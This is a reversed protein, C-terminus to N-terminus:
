AKKNLVAPVSTCPVMGLETIVTDVFSSPMVDYVLNLLYLSNVDRWNELVSNTESKRIKVLDDPDGLENFVFADTQVRECFKYTECCVLVPVNNAKAVMAIISSGIRSMVYGNSLLAHAGLFVKTVEKITYSVANILVYSCRIGANTLKRVAERGEFRPRSDVIVVRFMKGDNYADKFIKVILSSCSYTLIVDGNNIKETAYTRSIAEGSLVIKERIFSDICELISEKAEQEPTGPPINSIELKLYKIANGMSVSLPRCQTLFSIYPKLRSELDRSMEKSPPTTYDTIVKKFANMLAICRANAGSIAGEAYQLGLRIIVPHIAGSVFSIEKTLSTDKEYQHLHSFLTVKKQGRSRIPVHQKALKKAEKRQVKEDDMQVQYSVRSADPKKQPVISADQAKQKVSNQSEAGPKSKQAVDGGSKALKAARQAEQLARREAKLEAKSKKPADDSKDAHSKGINETQKAKNEKQKKTKKSQKPNQEM